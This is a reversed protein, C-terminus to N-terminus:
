IGPHNLLGPHGNEPLIRAHNYGGLQRALQEDCPRSDQGVDLDPVGPNRRPPCLNSRWISANVAAPQRRTKASFFDPLSM